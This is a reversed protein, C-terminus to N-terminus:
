KSVKVHKTENQQQENTIDLRKNVTKNQKASHGIRYHEMIVGHDINYM